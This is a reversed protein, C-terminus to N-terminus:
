FVILYLFIFFSTSLFVICEAIMWKRLFVIMLAYITRRMFYFTWFLLPTRRRLNIEGYLAYCFKELKKDMSYINRLKKLRQKNIFAHFPVFFLIFLTYFTFLITLLTSLTSSTNQFSLSQYSLFTIFAIPLFLQQSLRMWYNVKM